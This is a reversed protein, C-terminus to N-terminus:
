SKVDQDQASLIDHVLAKLEEVDPEDGTANRAALAIDKGTQGLQGSQASTFIRLLEEQSCQDVRESVDADLEQAEAIEERAKARIVRQTQAAVLAHVRSVFSGVDVGDDQLDARIQETSVDEDDSVFHAFRDVFTGGDKKM